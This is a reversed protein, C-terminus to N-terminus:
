AIVPPTSEDAKLRSGALPTHEIRNRTEIAFPEFQGAIRFNLTAYRLVFQCKPHLGRCRLQDVQGSGRGATAKLEIGADRYYGKVMGLFFPSHYHSHFWDTRVSVNDAAGAASAVLMAAVAFAAGRAVLFNSRYNM